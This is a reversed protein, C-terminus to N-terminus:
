PPTRGQIYWPPAASHAAPPASECTHNTAMIVLCVHLGNQSHALERRQTSHVLGAHHAHHCTSVKDLGASALLGGIGGDWDPVRTRSAVRVVLRAGQEHQTHTCLRTMTRAMRSNRSAVPTSTPKLGAPPMLAALCTRLLACVCVCCERNEGSVHQQQSVPTPTGLWSAHHTPGWTGSSCETGCQPTETASLCQSAATDRRWVASRRRRSCAWPMFITSLM